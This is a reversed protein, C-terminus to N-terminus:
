TKGLASSLQSRPSLLSTSSSASRTGLAGNTLAIKAFVPGSAVADTALTPSAGIVALVSTGVSPISIKKLLPFSLFPNGVVTTRM